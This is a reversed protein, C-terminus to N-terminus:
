PVHYMNVIFVITFTFYFILGLYAFYSQSSIYSDFLAVTVLMCALSMFSLMAIRGVYKAHTDKLWVKYGQIKYGSLQLVHLFKYGCFCLMVGNIVSLAIAVYLNPNSPDFFSM